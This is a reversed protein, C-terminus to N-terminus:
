RQAGPYGASRLLEVARFPPLAVLAEADRCGRPWEDPDMLLRCVNLEAARAGLEEEATVARGRHALHWAEHVLAPSIWAYPSGTRAFRVNVWIRRAGLDATSEVGTRGFAAFRITSGEFGRLAISLERRVGGQFYPCLRALAARFRAVGPPGGEVRTTRFGPCPARFAAPTSPVPAAVLRGVDHSLTGRPPPRRAAIAVTPSHPPSLMLTVVLVLTAAAVILFTAMFPRPMSELFRPGRQAKRPADVTM